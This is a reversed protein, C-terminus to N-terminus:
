LEMCVKSSLQRMIKKRKFFSIHDIFLVGDLHDIEHQIVRALLGGTDIKLEEGDLNLAKIDVLEPRTVDGMVGPLSLCGECFRSKGQKKLIIPNILVLPTKKNEIDEIIIIRKSIGVQPAAIGVGNAQRMIEIMDEAISRIEKDIKEVALAKKKLIREPYIRINLIQTSM